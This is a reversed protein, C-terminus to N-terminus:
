RATSLRALRRLIQIKSQSRESQGSPYRKSQDHSTAPSDLGRGNLDESTAKFPVRSRFSPASSDRLLVGPGAYSSSRSVIEAAPDRVTPEIPESVAYTQVRLHHGVPSTSSDDDSTFTLFFLFLLLTCLALVQISISHGRMTVLLTGQSRSNLFCTRPQLTYFYFTHVAHVQLSIYTLFVGQMDDM